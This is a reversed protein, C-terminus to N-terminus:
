LLLLLLNPVEWLPGDIPFNEKYFLCVFGARAPLGGHGAHKTLIELILKKLVDFWCGVFEFVFLFIQSAVRERVSM